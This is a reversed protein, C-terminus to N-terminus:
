ISNKRSFLATSNKVRDPRQCRHHYAENILEDLTMEYLCALKHITSLKASVRATEIEFVAQRQVGIFDAVEQQTLKAKTRLERPYSLSRRM